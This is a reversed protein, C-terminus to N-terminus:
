SPGRRPTFRAVGSKPRFTIISLHTPMCLSTHNGPIERSPRSVISHTIDRFFLKMNALAVNEVGAFKSCFDSAIGGSAVESIAAIALPPALISLKIPTLTKSKDM